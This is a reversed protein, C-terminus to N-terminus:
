ICSTALEIRPLVMILLTHVLRGILAGQLYMPGALKCSSVMWAKSSAMLVCRLGIQVIILMLSNRSMNM